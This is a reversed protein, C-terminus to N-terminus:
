GKHDSHDNGAWHTSSVILKELVQLGVLGAISPVRCPRSYAMTVSAAADSFRVIWPGRLMDAWAWKAAIEELLRRAGAAASQTPGLDRSDPM